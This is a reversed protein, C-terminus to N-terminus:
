LHACVRVFVNLCRARRVFVFAACECPCMCMRVCGRVFACWAGNDLVVKGTKNDVAKIRVAIAGANATGEAGAGAGVQPLVLQETGDALVVRLRGDKIILEKGEDAKGFKARAYRQAGFLDRKALFDTTVACHARWRQAPDSRSPLASPPRFCFLRERRVSSRFPRLHPRDALRRVSAFRATFWPAWCPCQSSRASTQPPHASGSTLFKM